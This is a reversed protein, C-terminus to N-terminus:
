EECQTLTLNLESSEYKNEIPPYSLVNIFHFTIQNQMNFIIFLYKIFLLLYLM